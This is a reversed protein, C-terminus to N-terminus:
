DIDREAGTKVMRIREWTTKTTKGMPWGMILLCLVKQDLGIHKVCNLNPPPLHFVSKM